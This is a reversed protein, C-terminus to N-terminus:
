NGAGRRAALAATMGEANWQNEGAAAGPPFFRELLASEGATLQIGVAAANEEVRTQRATGPIPVIDEGKQLLWALAIQAPTAEHQAAVEALRDVLLLNRSLNPAAFTGLHRRFDGDYLEEAHRVTGTLLGRALPSFAMFGVGLERLCPILKQEPERFLLSYDNQVAAIPHVATARRVHETGVNSLGLFRVFGDAVLAAMAGITEEIPVAPDPCHLFYLDIHDVALRRMSDLCAARVHEPSGDLGLWDGERNRRFGFKTSVFAHERRGRLAKGVIQENTFPGYADSTDLLDIGLELARHITAISERESAVGYFDSMSLCGLGIASVTPGDRGLRRRRM